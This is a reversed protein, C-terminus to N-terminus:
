TMLKELVYVSSFLFAFWFTHVLSHDAYGGLRGNREKKREKNTEKM